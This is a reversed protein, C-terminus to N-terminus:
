YLYTVHQAIKKKLYLINLHKMVIKDGRYQHTRLIPSQTDELGDQRVLRRTIILSRMIRSM